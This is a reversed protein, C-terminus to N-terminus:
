HTARYTRTAVASGHAPHAFLSPFVDALTMPGNRGAFAQEARTPGARLRAKALEACCSVHEEDRIPEHTSDRAIVTEARPRPRHWLRVENNPRFLKSDDLFYRLDHLFSSNGQLSDPVIGIVSPLENGLSAHIRQVRVGRSRRDITGYFLKTLKIALKCLRPRNKTRFRGEYIYVMRDIRAAVRATPRM